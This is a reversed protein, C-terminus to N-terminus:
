PNKTGSGKLVGRVTVGSGDWRWNWSNVDGLPSPSIQITGGDYCHNKGYTINERYYFTKGDQRLFQLKGGCSLSPYSISGTSGYLEMEVAYTTNTDSQTVNGSWSGGLGEAYAALTVALLFTILRRMLMKRELSRILLPRHRWFTVLGGYIIAAGYIKV